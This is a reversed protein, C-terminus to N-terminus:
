DADNEIYDPAIHEHKGDIGDAGIEGVSLMESSLVGGNETESSM